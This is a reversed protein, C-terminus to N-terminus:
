QKKVPRYKLRILEIYEQIKRIAEEPLGDIDLNYHSKSEAVIESLPKTLSTRGVLYDVSVNFYDAINRIISEDKPFRDNAEYYGIVRESINLVKGLEKQTIGKEERLLRLRDGFRMDTEGPTHLTYEIQIRFFVIDNLQVIKQLVFLVNRFFTSFSYSTRYFVLIHM